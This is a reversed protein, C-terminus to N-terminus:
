IGGLIVINKSRFNTEKGLEVSIKRRLIFNILFRRSFIKWFIKVGFLPRLCIRSHSSHTTHACTDALSSESFTNVNTGLTVHFFRGVFYLFYVSSLDCLSGYHLINFLVTFERGLNDEARFM